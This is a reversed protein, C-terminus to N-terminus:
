SPESLVHNGPSRRLVYLAGIHTLFTRINEEFDDSDVIGYDRVLAKVTEVEFISRETGVM